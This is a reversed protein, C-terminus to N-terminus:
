EKPLINRLTVLSKLSSATERPLSRLNAGYMEYYACSQLIDHVMINILGACELQYYPAQLLYIKLLKCFSYTFLRENKSLLTNELFSIHSM